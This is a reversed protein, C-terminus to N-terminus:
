QKKLTKGILVSDAATVTRRINENWPSIVAHASQFVQLIDQLTELVMFVASRGFGCPCGFDCSM